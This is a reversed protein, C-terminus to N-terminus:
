AWMLVSPLTRPRTVRLLQYGIGSLGQFFGPSAVQPPLGGDLRLRAPSGARRAITRARSRAAEVLEVRGLRDGAALLVDIRGFNGCCVHDLGDVDRALTSRLAADIDARISETDLAQLGGLRALGIGPAGHCWSNAYAPQSPERLDPWNGVSPDFLDNEYAIAEVAADRYEVRGTSAALRLLAYAIGAAGHSFGTLPRGAVTMWTRRGPEGASRTQLLRDGCASARQLVDPAPVVDYLSLLALAAGASGLFVDDPARAIRHDDLLRAAVVADALIAPDQLWEGIRTLTYVISGLGTAGGVGIDDALAHGRDRVASRLRTLAGVCVDRYLARGSVHDVAALFLAVGCAGTNLDFAIPQLQYRDIEALYQPGIWTASGDSGRIATGALHAAIDFALVDTSGESAGHQAGEERDPSPTHSFTGTPVSSRALNSYLSGAVLASQEALDADSLKDLRENVRAWGSTRICGDVLQGSSLAVMREDARASFYPIDGDEMQIQEDAVLPWWCPPSDQAVLVMSRALRDLEISRDAGDRLWAPDRLAQHVSGYARTNRHILRVRQRGLCDLPSGSSQLASRQALLFRYGATFGDVVDTVHDELRLPVGGLVPQSAPVPLTVPAVGLEMRDTDADYQWRPAQLTLEDTAATHLASVDSAREGETTEWNPLLGTSLVSDALEARAMAWADDAEPYLRPSHHLLTEVDLLVPHEGCAVLNERHCDTGALVYLLSLLQGARLYFRRAEESTVCPLHPVHEVWGYNGRPLVRPVKYALPTGRANLWALLQSFAQETGLDKPKYVLKRGARFTLVSVTRGGRHPDSLGTEIAVVTGLPGGDGIMREIADRDETLRELLDQTAEVWLDASRALLRALVPYRGFFKTFGGLLEIVFQEYQTRASADVPRLLRDLPSQRQDRAIGFELMLAHAAFFTLRRLLYRELSAHAEPELQRYTTGTQDALRRVAIRVFPVLVDEFPLPDHPDLFRAPRGNTSDVACAAAQAFTQTWRPLPCGDALRVDGLLPLVRQLDIADWELRRSFRADDAEAVVERWRDLRSAAIADKAGALRPTVSGALRDFLPTAAAAIASLDEAPM